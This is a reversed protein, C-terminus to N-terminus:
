IESLHDGLFQNFRNQQQILRGIMILVVQNGIMISVVQNGNMLEVQKGIMILEVQKGIMIIEVLKGIMILEVKSGIEMEKNIIGIEVQIRKGKRIVKGIIEEKFIKNEVMEIKGLNIGIMVEMEIMVEMGISVEEEEMKKIATILEKITMGVGKQIERKLNIIKFIIIQSLNKTIIITQNIMSEQIGTL